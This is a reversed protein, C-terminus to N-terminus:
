IEDMEWGKCKVAETITVEVRPNEKDYDVRSGDMSVVIKCNDDELVGYRVLIDLTAEQLNCLDVRRHTAMYYVMKVNCPLKIGPVVRIQWGCSEAYQRYAESQTIFPTSGKYLIQQSNKKTRPDGLLTLRFM